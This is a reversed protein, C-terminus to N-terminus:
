YLAWSCAVALVHECSTSSVDVRLVVWGSFYSAGGFEAFLAYAFINFDTSCIKRVIQQITRNACVEHVSIILLNLVIDFFLFLKKRLLVSIKFSIDLDLIFNKPFIRLAVLFCDNFFVLLVLYLRCFFFLNEWCVNLYLLWKSTFCCEDRNVNYFSPNVLGQHFSFWFKRM